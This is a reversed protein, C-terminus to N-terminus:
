VENDRKDYEDWHRYILLDHNLHITDSNRYHVSWSVDYSKEGEPTEVVFTGEGRLRVGTRNDIRLIPDDNITNDHFSLVVHGPVDRWEGTLTNLIDQEEETFRPQEPFKWEAAVADVKEQIAQQEAPTFETVVPIYKDALMPKVAEEPTAEPALLNVKPTNDTTAETNENPLYIAMDVVPVLDVSESSPAVPMVMLGDEAQVSNFFGASLLGALVMSYVYTAKM